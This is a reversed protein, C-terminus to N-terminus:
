GKINYINLFNNNYKIPLSYYISVSENNPSSVILDSYTDPLIQEDTEQPEYVEIYYSRFCCGGTPSEFGHLVSYVGPKEYTFVPNEEESDWYLDCQFDWGWGSINEGQSEDTFQVTLPAPGSLPEASFDAIYPDPGHSINHFYTFSEGYNTSYLNFYHYIEGSLQWYMEATNIEGPQRGGTYPLFRLNNIFEWTDGYDSSFWLENRMSTALYIEGPLAGRSLIYSYGAKFPFTYQIELNDYNDYTILLYITDQNAWEYNLVYGIGDEVGIESDLTSGFLGNLDHAIFTEGYNESHQQFGCFLEGENRGASIDYHDMQCLYSWDLGYNYSIFLQDLNNSHYVVGPTLDAALQGSYLDGNMLNMTEGHDTSRYVGSSDQPGAMFYLEGISSGRTYLNNICYLSIGSITLLILLKFKM